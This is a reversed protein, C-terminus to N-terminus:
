LSTRSGFPPEGVWGTASEGVSDSNIAMM